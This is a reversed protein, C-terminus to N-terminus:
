FLVGRASHKIGPPFDIVHVVDALARWRYPALLQISIELFTESACLDSDDAFRETVATTM